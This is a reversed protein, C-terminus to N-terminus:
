KVFMYNEKPSRLWQTTGSGQTISAWDTAEFHVLVMGAKPLGDIPQNGVYDALYTFAPNHGFIAITDLANDFRNIIGMLNYLGAEYINDIFNIKAVPYAFTEAFLEATKKARLAPSSCLLQPSCGTQALTKAMEVASAEGKSTLVRDFDKGSSAYDEAHAHRVILLKKTMNPYHPM